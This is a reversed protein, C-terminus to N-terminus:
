SPFFCCCMCASNNLFSNTLNTEKIKDDVFVSFEHCLKVSDSFKTAM